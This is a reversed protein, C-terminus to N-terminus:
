VQFQLDYLRKYTGGRELLEHHTGLDVVRGGEMVVIRDAGMVTSLRHAIVLTTRGRMLNGLAKQVLAESESHSHSGESAALVSARTLEVAARSRALEAACAPCGALHAEIEARESPPLTGDLIAEIRETAESCTM